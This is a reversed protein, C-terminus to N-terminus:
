SRGKRVVITEAFKDHLTQRMQGTFIWLDDILGLFPIFSMVIMAAWRRGAIGATVPQRDQLRVTRTGVLLKGATGGTITTLVVDNFVSIGLLLGYSLVVGRAGITDRTVSYIILPIAILVSDIIRAVLRQGFGALNFMESPPLGPTPEPLLPSQEM